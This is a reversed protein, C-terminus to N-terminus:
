QAPEDYPKDKEVTDQTMLNLVLFGGNISFDVGVHGTDSSRSETIALQNTMEVAFQV